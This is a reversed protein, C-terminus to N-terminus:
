PGADLSLAAKIRPPTVKNIRHGIIMSLSRTAPHPEGGILFGVSFGIDDEMVGSLNM